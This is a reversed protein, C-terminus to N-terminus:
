ENKHIILKRRVLELLSQVTDSDMDWEFNDMLFNYAENFNTSNNLVGLTNNYLEVDGNFLEKIFQFRDNLGIANSLNTIPKSHSHSIVDKRYSQGFNENISASKVRFRDSITRNDGEKKNTIEPEQRDQGTSEGGTGKGKEVGQEKIDEAQDESSRIKEVPQKDNSGAASIAQSPSRREESKKIMLLVDYLNRVKSLALDMEISPIREHNNFNSILQNIDQLNSSLIDLTHKYDM